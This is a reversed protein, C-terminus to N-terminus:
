SNPWMITTAKPRGIGDGTKPNTKKNIKRSILPCIGSDRNVTDDTNSGSSGKNRIGALAPMMSCPGSSSFSPRAMATASSTLRVADM